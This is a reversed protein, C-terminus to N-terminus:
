NLDFGALSGTTVDPDTRGIYDINMLILRGSLKVDGIYDLLHINCPTTQRQTGAFQSATRLVRSGM